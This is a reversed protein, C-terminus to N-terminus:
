KLIVMRKTDIEKGDASLSYFYIGSALQNIINQNNPFRVEYTGAKQFENVLTEIERGLINYVKLTIFRSDKIRFRINTSPNFPNPYNQELSYEVPIESGINKIDITSQVTPALLRVVQPTGESLDPHIGDRGLYRLTDQFLNYLDLGRKVNPNSAYENMVTNWVNRYVVQSDPNTFFEATTHHISNYIVKVNKSLLFNIIWRIDNGYMPSPYNNVCDNAGFFFIAIKYRNTNYYEGGPLYAKHLSDSRFWNSQRSGNVGRNIVKIKMGTLRQLEVQLMHGLNDWYNYAEDGCRILTKIECQDGFDLFSHGWLVVFLTDSGSLSPASQTTFSIPTSFSSWVTGNNYSVKANYTTNPKCGLIQKLNLDKQDATFPYPIGECVNWKTDLVTDAGELILWRTNAPTVSNGSMNLNFWGWNLNSYTIAPQNLQSLLLLPYFFILIFFLFLKTKM